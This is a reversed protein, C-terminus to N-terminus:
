KVNGSGCLVFLLNCSFFLATKVGKERIKKWECLLAPVETSVCMSGSVDVCFIVMEDENKHLSNAPQLLYDACFVSCNPIEEAELSLDQNEYGCFECKWVYVGESVRTLHSTQSLVARCGNCYIPDGTNEGVVELAGLWIVACNPNTKETKMIIKKGKIGKEKEKEKEKGKVEQEINDKSGFSFLRDWLGISPKPNITPM